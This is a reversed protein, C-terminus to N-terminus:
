RQCSSPRFSRFKNGSISYFCQQTQSFVYMYKKEQQIKTRCCLPIDDVFITKDQLKKGIEKARCKQRRTNGRGDTHM